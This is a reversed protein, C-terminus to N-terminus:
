SHKKNRGKECSEGYFGDECICRYGGTPLHLCLADNQCPTSLCNDTVVECHPGGYQPPCRCEYKDPGNVCVGRNQCPDEACFDIAADFFYRVLSKNPAEALFM